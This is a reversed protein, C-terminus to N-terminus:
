NGRDSGADFGDATIRRARRHWAPWFGSRLNVQGPLNAALWEAVRRWCCEVHGADAISCLGIRQTECGVLLNKKVVRVNIRRNKGVTQTCATTALNLFDALWVTSCAM